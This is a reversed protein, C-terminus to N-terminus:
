KSAPEQFDIGISTNGSDRVREGIALLNTEELGSADKLIQSLLVVLIVLDRVRLSRPLIVLHVVPQPELIRAHSRHLTRM